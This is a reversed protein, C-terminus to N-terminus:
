LIEAFEQRDRALSEVFTSHIIRMRLNVNTIIKYTKYHTKLIAIESFGRLNAIELGECKFGTRRYMTCTFTSNAPSHVLLPVSLYHQLSECFFPSFNNESILCSLQFYMYCVYGTCQVKLHRFVSRAMM